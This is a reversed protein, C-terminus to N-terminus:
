PWQTINHYNSINEKTKTYQTLFFRAVRIQGTICEHYSPLSPSSWPLLVFTPFQDSDSKEVIANIKGEGREIERERERERKVREFDNLVNLIHFIPV